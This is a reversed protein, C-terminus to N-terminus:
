FFHKVSFMHNRFGWTLASFLGKWQNWPIRFNFRLLNKISSRLISNIVFDWFYRKFFKATKYKLIVIMPNRSDYFVKKSSNKGITMSEKHWLKAYPTFFIKFDKQKARAQWEFDEGQLFFNEDYGGVSNYLDKSVLWFIDDCFPIETVYDYQGKDIENRGRSGGNWRIPHSIKGATQLVKPCDYFYVKGTVFGIMPETIAIKVLESLVRKDVKVDNNTILVYDAKQDDFAYKMGYNFGGSYGLNTVSELIKVNPYNAQLYALSGDTSGNDIVVVKFNDYDNDLYTFICDDLLHKGNYNLILVIVSPSSLILEL